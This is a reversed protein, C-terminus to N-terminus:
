RTAKTVVIKTNLSTQYNCCHMSPASSSSAAEVTPMHLAGKHAALWAKIPTKKFIAGKADCIAKMMLKYGITPKATLQQSLFEQYDGINPEATIAEHQSLWTRM